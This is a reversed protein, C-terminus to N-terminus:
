NGGNVFEARRNKAFAADDHGQVAPREEGYSITSIQAASVGQAVLYDKVSGARREGLALNYETTGREDCHGEVQIVRGGNSKIWAAHKQLTTKAEATLEFSDYQFYVTGLEPIPTGAGSVNSANVNAAQDGAVDGESKTQKKGCASLTLAAACFTVWALKKFNM